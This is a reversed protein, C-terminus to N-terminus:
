VGSSGLVVRADNAAPGVVRWAAGHLELSSAARRRWWAAVERPLALWASSDCAVHSLFREYEALRVPQLMYDPHTLLLAIGGRERLFSAKEFWVRGDEQALLEFLTHDMPLTIPLEVMDGIFFPLWSCSGGSQPEYRAVDSYSSDHDFGLQEMREWSRQTAPARFGVSGWRRGYDRMAPLRREFVGAALDRGDHRLGHVGIEFGADSFTRVLEPDVTYDREPVFYWASRVGAERELAAITEVHAYGVAREVDHTLTVAWVYPQPWPAIWPLPAGHIKEVLLLLYRYLDHLATETPWSPFSAREQVRVFRRRAAMQVSRPLIPRIRYYLSRVFSDTATGHLYEERLLARVLENPDFPFLSSGDSARWVFAVPLGNLDLVPDARQWDHGPAGLVRQVDDEAATAGYLRIAGVRYWSRPASPLPSVWILEAGRTSVVRGGAPHSSEDDIGYPVRFTELVDLPRSALLTM